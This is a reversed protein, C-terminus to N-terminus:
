ALAINPAFGLYSKASLSFRQPDDSVYFTQQGITKSDFRSLDNNKFLIEIKEACSKASDVIVIDKNLEDAILHRLLPYHTCGLLLTDIKQHKLPALYERIILKTAEHNIFHEEVLPALLPCAISTVNAKPLRKLIEREYIGSRITSRTGLVAIQQGTTERVVSEVGAEIVGIVPFPCHLPLQHQSHAAATNCAIVLLKLPHKQMLFKANEVSYRLVEASSKEGYPMRATDGFYILHEHPLTAAVERLVTLGGVGSDLFGIALSSRDTV